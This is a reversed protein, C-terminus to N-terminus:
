GVISTFPRIPATIRSEEKPWAQLIIFDDVWVPQSFALHNLNELSAEFLM